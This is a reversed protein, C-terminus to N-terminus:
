RESTAPGSQSFVWDPTGTDSPISGSRESSTRSDAGSTSDSGNSSLAPPGADDEDEDPEDDVHLTFMKAFAVGALRKFVEPAENEEIKGARCLGIVAFACFLESDGGDIGTDVTLPLYGSFRKIWGLETTTLEDGYVFPYRGDYPKVGSIEIEM